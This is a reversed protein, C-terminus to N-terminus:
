ANTSSTGISLRSSTLLAACKLSSAIASLMAGHTRRCICKDMQAMQLSVADRCCQASRPERVSVLAERHMATPFSISCVADLVGVSPMGVLAM